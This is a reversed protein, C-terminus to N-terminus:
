LDPHDDDLSGAQNQIQSPINRFGNCFSISVYSTCFVITGHSAQFTWGWYTGRPAGLAAFRLFICPKQTELAFVYGFGYSFAINGSPSCTQCSM